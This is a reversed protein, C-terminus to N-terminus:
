AVPMIRYDRLLRKALNQMRFASGTDVAIDGDADTLPIAQEDIMSVAWYLAAEQVTEPVAAWGFAGTIRVTAVPPPACPWMGEGPLMWLETAPWTDDPGNPEGLAWKDAALVTWPDDHSRRTEVQTVTVLDRTDIDRRGPRPRFTRAATTKAFSRGCYNNVAKDVADRALLSEDFVRDGAVASKMGIHALIQAQTVYAM